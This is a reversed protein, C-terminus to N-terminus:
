IFNNKILKDIFEIYMSASWSQSRTWFNRSTSVHFNMSFVYSYFTSLPGARQWHKSGLVSLIEGGSWSKSGSESLTKQFIKM